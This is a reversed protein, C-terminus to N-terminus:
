EENIWDMSADHASGCSLEDSPIEEACCCSSNKEHSKTKMANRHTFTDRPPTTELTLLSTFPHPYTTNSTQASTGRSSLSSDVAPDLGTNHNCLGCSVPSASPGRPICVPDSNQRQAGSHHESRQRQWVFHSPAIAMVEDCCRRSVAARYEIRSWLKDRQKLFHPFQKRWNKGLAWPFIEYKNEEEDEEMTNSTGVSLCCSSIRNLAIFFNKRTYEAITFHARKFYVFAMALLYKDAIKCCSDMFLFDQILDDNDFLRFYSAMEQRNIVITPPTTMKSYHTKDQPRSPQSKMQPGLTDQTNPRKLRLSRRIQRSHASNPQIRATVSPPTQSWRHKHKMM